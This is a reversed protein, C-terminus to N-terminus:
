ALDNISSFTEHPRKNLNAIMTGVMISVLLPSFGIGYHELSNNLVWIIGITLAIAAVSLVQRTDRSDGFKANVFSLIFGIVCGILISGVVEILPKTIILWIPMDGTNSTLIQAISIFFGFVIIGYIDDLATVPLITKTLPGHARYQRIVMLTAAPATAASMSALILGFSINEKSFVNNGNPIGNGKPLLFMALFVFGVAFIVEFFTIINVARGTKAIAKVNFESGISFAIFSLAIDGIFKLSEQDEATVIGGFDPVILGLSPGLLIGFLLYGSVEPLKLKRAIKGGIFGFILVAAIKLILVYM